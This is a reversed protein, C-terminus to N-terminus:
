RLASLIASEQDPFVTRLDLVVADEQIRAIVPLQARRLGSAIEDAGMGERRLAILTTAMTAEPPTGGGVVSEGAILTATYGTRQTIEQALAAAREGIEQGSRRLMFLAPIREYEERAYALLTAELAAYTLKDVRMARYFPNARMRAILEPRGTLMGAQPGGLLKDGSYAVVDVGARLSQQVTHSAGAIGMARLDVLGGNGHDEFVAIQHKRGLEVLAELSPQETFGTISFNSRSVRM